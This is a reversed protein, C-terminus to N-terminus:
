RSNTGLEELLLDQASCRLMAQQRALRGMHRRVASRLREQGMRGDPLHRAARRQQPDLRGGVLAPREQTRPDRRHHSAAASRDSLGRSEPVDISTIVCCGWIRCCRWCSRQTTPRTSATSSAATARMTRRRARSRRRPGPRRRRRAERVMRFSRRDGPARRGPKARGAGMIEQLRARDGPGFGIPTRYTCGFGHCVLVNPPNPVPLSFSELMRVVAPDLPAAAATGTMALFLCAVLKGLRM